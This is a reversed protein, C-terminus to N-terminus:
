SDSILENKQTLEFEDLQIICNSLFEKNLVLSRTLRKNPLDHYGDYVPLVIFDRQSLEQSLSIRYNKEENFTYGLETLRDHIDQTDIYKVIPKNIQPHLISIQIM